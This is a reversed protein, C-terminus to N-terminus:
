AADAGSVGNDERDGKGLLKPVGESWLWCVTADV